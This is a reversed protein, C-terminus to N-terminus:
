HDDLIIFHEFWININESFQDKRRATHRDEGAVGPQLRGRGVGGRRGTDKHTICVLILSHKTAM